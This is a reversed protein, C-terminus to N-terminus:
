SSAGQHRRMQQYTPSRRMLEADTGFDEHGADNLVLIKSCSSLVTLRHSILILTKNWDSLARILQDETAHDVASMVDDLILVDCDALMGRALTLRQKQGGSLNVGKEGLETKLGHPLREIEDLMQVKALAQRVQQTTLNPAALKLNDEISMSFLLPEQTVICIRERLSDITYSESPHGNVLISKEPAPLLRGLLLALTTKGSGIPGLIGIKEGKHVSFSVNKLGANTQGQYQFHLDRVELKEFPGLVRTGLDPIQTKTELVTRIRSFSAMGKQYQSFGLGFATMPWVMKIIYRQFAVFTGISAAGTILDDTAIFILIVSGAAVGFQMIPAFLSDVLAVRNCAVEYELNLKRYGLLRTREQVFSKLVRIGSITEQTHGSLLSLKEQEVKYRTFIMQTVWRILLPVFPLFILTKWTWSPNLSIMIPLIVILIVAGDVLILVSNGIAQRFAQVDNVLLSMLEGIQNRSYFQLDLHSLHKYLKQRLDEAAKTHYEGFFTRWGYRTVALAAMVAFFLASTKALAAFGQGSTVQDLAQKVILPYIGDLANTVLLFLMGIWFSRGYKKIYYILPSKLLM